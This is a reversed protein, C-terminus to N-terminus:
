NEAVLPLEKNVEVKIKFQNALDLLKKDPCLPLERILGAITKSRNEVSFIKMRGGTQKKSLNPCWNTFHPWLGLVKLLLRALWNYRHSCKKCVRNKM